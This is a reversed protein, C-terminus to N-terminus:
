AQLTQVANSFGSDLFFLSSFSWPKGGLTHWSCHQCSTKAREPRKNQPTIDIRGTMHQWQDKQFVQWTKPVLLCVSLLTPEVPVSAAPHRFAHPFHQTTRMDPLLSALLALHSLHEPHPLQLHANMPQPQVLPGLSGQPGAQPCLSPLPWCLLTGPPRLSALTAAAPDRHPPALTASPCPHHHCLLTRPM